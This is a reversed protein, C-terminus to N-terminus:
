EITRNSPQPISFFFQTGKGPASELWIEGNMNEVIKRSIALGIGTGDFESRTHLRQFIAFIKDHYQPDIGIGNDSVQIVWRDPEEATNIRIFPPIDPKTYKLSNSILNQLLQRLPTRAAFVAPLNSYDLSAGKEVIKQLFLGEIEAILEQLPIWEKQEDSRGVRSFELLDLIIQRMRSAGDVAFRIFERGREDLVESYKRDLNTLFGTVMRLPEQLDHSAVYAFQELEANTKRIEQISQQLQIEMQQRETIDIGYGLMYKLEDQEFMPYFERLVYQKRGNAGPHEDVWEVQARTEMAKQFQQNRFEARSRPLKKRQCYDFDTKGIIWKRMEEDRIAHPNVYLYEHQNNFVVIDAQLNDLIDEWFKKQRILEFQATKETSVDRGVAIWQTCIGYQNHVPTISLNIWFPTGDKKYNVTTIDCPQQLRLARGLRKIEEKDSLPGQLIRPTKGIVDELEYGTMRTFAHNVFLIRPGPDSLPYPETILVADNINTIVSELLRLRSEEQKRQTIDMIQGIMRTVRGGGDRIIWAHDSIYAWTEDAKLIRFEAEWISQTSKVSLASQLLETVYNLDDPHIKSKVFHMANLYLGDHYGFFTKFNSEFIIQDNVFDWDWISGTTAKLVYGFRQISEDLSRNINQIVQHAQKLAQQQEASQELLESLESFAIEKTKLVHLLDTMPDNVAFDVLKLGAGEMEEVRTLWPSGAFLFADAERTQVFQGRFLIPHNGKKRFIFLQNPDTHLTHVPDSGGDPRVWEFIESFPINLVPGILKEMSVGVSRIMMDPDLKLYFPFLKNFQDSSFNFSLQLEM